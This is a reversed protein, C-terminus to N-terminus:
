CDQHELHHPRRPHSSPFDVTIPAGLEWLKLLLENRSGEPYEDLADVVIFVASFKSVTLHLM